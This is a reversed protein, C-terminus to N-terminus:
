LQGLFYPLATLLFIGLLFVGTSIGLPLTWGLYQRYWNAIAVKIL